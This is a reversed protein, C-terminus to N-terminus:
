TPKGTGSLSSAPQGPRQRPRGRTQEKLMAEERLELAGRELAPCNGLVHGQLVASLLDSALDTKTQLRAEGEVTEARSPVGGRGWNRPVGGDLSVPIWGMSELEYTWLGREPAALVLLAWHLVPPRRSVAFMLWGPVVYADM